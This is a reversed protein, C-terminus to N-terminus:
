IFPALVKLVGLGFLAFDYKVPDKPDLIRLQEDLERVAKQDNQKRKLLGLKRAINWYTRGFPVIIKLNSTPGYVLILEM